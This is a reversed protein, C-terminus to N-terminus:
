ACSDEGGRLEYVYNRREVVSWECDEAVFYLVRTPSSGVVRQIVESASGIAGVHERNYAIYKNRFIM